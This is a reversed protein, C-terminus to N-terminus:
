REWPEAGWEETVVTAPPGAVTTAPWAAAAAARCAAGVVLVTTPGRGVLLATVVMRGPRSEVVALVVVVPTPGGVDGVKAGKGSGGGHAESGKHCRLLWETARRRTELGRRCAGDDIAGGGAEEDSAAAMTVMWAAKAAECSRSCMADTARSCSCAMLAVRVAWIAVACHRMRPGAGTTWSAGGSV